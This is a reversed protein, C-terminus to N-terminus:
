RTSSGGSLPQRHEGMLDTRMAQDHPLDVTVTADGAQGLCEVLRLEIENGERRLAEVVVNESTQIFSKAAPMTYGCAAMVPANFQWAAQPINAEPWGSGHPLLAYAYSQQGRQAMWTVPRGYYSECVNNLLLIVTNGALERAPVGRDLLAVGVGGALAYDSWRIVPIIGKNHRDPAPETRGV